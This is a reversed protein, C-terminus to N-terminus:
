SSAPSPPLDVQQGQDAAERVQGGAGEDGSYIPDILGNPVAAKKRM